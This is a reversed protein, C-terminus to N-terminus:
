QVFIGATEPGVRLQPTPHQIQVALLVECDDIVHGIHEANLVWKVNRHKNHILRAHVNAPTIVCETCGVEVEIVLSLLSTLPTFFSSVEPSLLDYSDMVQHARVLVTHADCLREVGLVAAPTPQVADQTLAAMYWGTVALPEKSICECQNGFLLVELRLRREQCAFESLSRGVVASDDDRRLVVRLEVWCLEEPCCSLPICAGVARVLEVTEAVKDILRELEECWLVALVAETM